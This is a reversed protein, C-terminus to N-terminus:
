PRRSPGRPTRARMDELLTLIMCYLFASAGLVFVLAGLALLEDFHPSM